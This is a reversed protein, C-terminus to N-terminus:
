SRKISRMAGSGTPKPTANPPTFRSKKLRLGLRKTWRHVSTWGLRVGTEAGLRDRLEALTLDKQAAVLALIQQQVPETVASPVGRRAQPVRERQGTQVEQKRIKRVYEWSVGFREALVRCSGEGRAYAELIRVRLDDSIAKAM